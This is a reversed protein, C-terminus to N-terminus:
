TRLGIGEWRVTGSTMKRFGEPREGLALGFARQSMTQDGTYDQYARFLPTAGAALNEGIVCRQRIFDGLQDQEDRYDDTAQRVSEPVGLEERQWALCGGVAWALIGPLEERLKDPLDKDQESEPITEIFPVLRIRRWIGNDTGRVRPRHNTALWLKCEPVFDFFEGRIFRASMRDGGTMQKVLEEDLRRGESTEIVTVLRAGRLRAVDNPISGQPKTMLLDRPAQQAYDGGLVASLTNLLVSKGNAGSGFPILVVQETTRGTLSYGAAKQIFSLLEVNGAMIRDLFKQWLPAPTGPQYDV